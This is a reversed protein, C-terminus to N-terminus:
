FVSVLCTCVCLLVGEGLGEGVQAGRQGLQDVGGGDLPLPVGVVVIEPQDPVEVPANQKAKKEPPPAPVEILAYKTKEYKIVYFEDM